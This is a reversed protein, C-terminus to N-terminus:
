VAYPVAHRDHPHAARREPLVPVGRQVVEQDVGVSQGQRRGAQGLAVDVGVPVAGRLGRGRADRQGRRQPEVVLRHGTDLVEAGGPGIRQPLGAVGHGRPGVVHRHGDAGLLDLVAAVLAEVGKRDGGVAGVACEGRRGHEAEDERGVRLAVPHVDVLQAVHHGPDGLLVVEVPGAVVQGLEPALGRGLGDALHGGHCSPERHEVTGPHRVPGGRGHHDRGVPRGVVGVCRQVHLGERQHGAVAAPQDVGPEVECRQRLAGRRGGVGVGLGADGVRPGLQGHGLDVVAERGGLQHEHLVESEALPSRGPPLDQLAREGQVPVQRDVRVSSELAEAM